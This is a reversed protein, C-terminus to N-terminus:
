MALLSGAMIMLLPITIGLYAVYTVLSVKVDSSYANWHYYLIGTNIAYFGLVLYFFLTALDGGSLMPLISVDPLALNPTSDM